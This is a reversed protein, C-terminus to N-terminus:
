VRRTINASALTVGSATFSYYYWAPVELTIIDTQTNTTSGNVFKTYLTSPTNTTGLAVAVTGSTGGSTAYVPQSIILPSGSTNQYVTSSTLPLTPLNMPVNFPQILNFSNDLQRNDELELGAPVPNDGGYLTAVNIFLNNKYKAYQPSSHTINLGTSANKIINDAILAENGMQHFIGYQPTNVGTVGTLKNGTVVPSGFVINLLSNGQFNHITNGSVAIEKSKLSDLAMQLARQLHLVVEMGSM